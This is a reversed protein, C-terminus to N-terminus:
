PIVLGSQGVAGANHMEEASTFIGLPKTSHYNMMANIATTGSNVLAKGLAVTLDHNPILAWYAFVGVILAILPILIWKTEDQDIHKSKKLGQYWFTVLWSLATAEPTNTTINNIGAFAANQTVTATLAGPTTQYAAQITGAITQAQPTHTGTAVSEAAAAEVATAPNAQHREWPRM